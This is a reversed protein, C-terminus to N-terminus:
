WRLRIGADSSLNVTPVPNVFITIPDSIANCASVGALQDYVVVRVVENNLLSNNHVDISQFTSARSEM